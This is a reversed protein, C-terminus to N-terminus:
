TGVAYRLRGEKRLRRGESFRDTRVISVLPPGKLNQSRAEARGEAPKLRRDPDQPVIPRRRDGRIMVPDM